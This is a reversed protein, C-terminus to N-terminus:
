IFIDALLAKAAQKNMIRCDNLFTPLLVLASQLDAVLNTYVEAVTQRSYPKTIDSTTIYPIGPHGANATFLYGQAFINLLKFHVM